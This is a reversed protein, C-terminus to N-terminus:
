KFSELPIAEKSLEKSTFYFATLCVVLFAEVVLVTVLAFPWYRKSYKYGKVPILSLLMAFVLALGPIIIGYVFAARVIFKSKTTPITAYKLTSQYHLFALWVSCIFLLFSAILIIRKWTRSMLPKQPPQQLDNLFDQSPNM